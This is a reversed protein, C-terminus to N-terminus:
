ERRENSPLAFVIRPSRRRKEREGRKPHCSSFLKQPRRRRKHFTTFLEQYILSQIKRMGEKKRM